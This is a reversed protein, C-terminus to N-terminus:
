QEKGLLKAIFQNRAIAKVEMTFDEGRNDLHYLLESVVYTGDQKNIYYGYNSSASTNEIQILAQAANDLKITDGPSLMYTPTLNIVIGDSTVTPYTEVSVDSTVIPVSKLKASSTEYLSANLISYITDYNSADANTVYYQESMGLVKQVWESLSCNASLNAKLVEEKLTDDVYANANGAKANLDVLVAYLNTGANYTLSLRKQFMPLTKLAAGCSITAKTTNNSTKVNNIYIVGGKFVTIKNSKYKKVDETISGANEYGAIVEVNFLNRRLLDAHQAYSLNYIDITATDKMVGRYKHVEVHLKLSDEGNGIIFEDGSDNYLRVTLIRMWPFNM